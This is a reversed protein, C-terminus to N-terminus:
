GSPLEGMWRVHSKLRYTLLHWAVGLTAANKYINKYHRCAREEFQQYKPLYLTTDWSFDGRRAIEVREVLHSALLQQTSAQVLRHSLWRPHRLLLSFPQVERNHTAFGWADDANGSISLIVTRFPAITITDARRLEPEFRSVAIASILSAYCGHVPHTFLRAFGNSQTEFMPKSVPSGQPDPIPAPVPITEPDFQIECTTEAMVVFGAAQLELTLSDLELSDFQTFQMVEGYEMKFQVRRYKMLTTHLHQLWVIKKGVFWLAPILFIWIM